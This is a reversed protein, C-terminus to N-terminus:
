EGYIKKIHNAICDQLYALDMYDVLYKRFEDMPINPCTKNTGEAEYHGLVDRIELGFQNIFHLIVKKASILQNDTFSKKGILCIGISKLNYYRVQAGIEQSEFFPDDDLYRGPHIQGDLFPFYSDPNPRGNLIVEHYGVGAWGRAKHSRDISLVDGYERASCHLFINEVKM